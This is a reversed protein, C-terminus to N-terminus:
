DGGSTTHIITGSEGVAWGDEANAFVVGRLLGTSAPLNQATFSVGGDVTAFVQPGNGVVWGENADVFSLSNLISAGSINTEAWNAGGDTTRLVKGAHASIWAVTSSTATIGTLNLGTPVGQTQAAWSVGADVTVFLKSNDGIIWGTSSNAFFVGTLEVSVSPGLLLSVDSWSLGADATALVTGGAGVAWGANNSTFHVGFLNDSSGSNQSSWTTGGDSTSLITGNNGVVWGLNDNVFYVSTLNDTSGSTQEGWSVGGDTTLLVKGAEGVAHIRTASRAFVANIPESISSTQSQWGCTSDAADAAGDCDNDDGDTCLASSDEAAVVTAPEETDLNGDCDNDRGDCLENADPNVDTRTDDCDDDATGPTGDAGCSTFLDGDGDFGNDAVGDCDEDDANCTETGNPNDLPDADDCDDDATGATGDAGCSTFLDGDGDFGNDAVGDCDEDDANCTETGSPNDLPDADDCDDDATGATGDAGCSTFLDGDGDFGEDVVSDCNNDGGDCVEANGPFNNAGAATDDCDDDSNGSNGDPGCTTVGDGDSDFGNDATGDCDEDDANCTETGNPHDLPDSDDCDTGALLNASTTGAAAAVFSLCEIFFDSDDDTEDAPLNTPDSCDTDYGDCAEVAVGPNVAGSYSNSSLPEDVCDSGSVLGLGGTGAAAAVFGSCQAYGDGDDDNELVNDPSSDGGGGSCNTDYGDCVDSSAAPSVEDSYSNGADDVCDGGSILNASTTGAAAAVFSDCPIYLDGDDDREDAREPNSNSAGASCDTDHGDCVETANPHVEDAYSNSALDLCDGGGLLSQPHSEGSAIAASVFNACEIFGDGDDDVENGDVAASGGSSCDTDYGDCVELAAPNIQNSYPTPPGGSVPPLDLCDGGGLLNQLGTLAASSVFGACEIYGDADQDNEDAFDPTSSSAGGTCNTDYGDCAEAQNPHVQGSYANVSAIEDLCDAGGVIGGPDVWSGNTTLTCELYGDGDDDQESQQDPSHSSGGGTCDTDYGDCSESAAGPHVFSSWSNAAEDLCDGGGALSPSQTGVAAAVFGDCHIYGDGDDDVEDAQDPAFSASGNSCNSDYGDCADTPQGPNVQAAYTNTPLDLCDNAGSLLQNAHAAHSLWSGAGADVCEVYGDGDNDFENPRTSATPVYALGLPESCDNTWGDCLDPANPHIAAAVANRHAVAAAGSGAPYGPVDILLDAGSDLCDGDACETYGDGDADLENGNSGSFNAVGDCDNDVGDCIEANNPFNNADGDDCDGNAESFGDGDDDSNNTQEDVQGNCNDDIGNAQETGAPNVTLDGDDCDGGLLGSLAGPPPWCTVYGDGDGDDEVAMILGDCDNDVGDCIEASGPTRTPDGDDCDGQAETVGDQDADNESGLGCAMCAVAQSACDTASTTHSTFCYETATQGGGFDFGPNGDCQNDVWRFVGNEWYSDPIEPAFPYVDSAVPDSPDDNCDLGGSLGVLVGNGPDCEVYGDGDKDREDNGASNFDADGDCDNDIGDCIEAASPYVQSLTDNCDGIGSLGLDQLSTGPSLNLTQCETYGDGDDDTETIHLQGDCNNDVFDCRSVGNDEESQNPNQTADGDDCDGSALCHGVPTCVPANGCDLDDCDSDGDGDDDLGNACLEPNSSDGRAVNCSAPIAAGGAPNCRCVEEVLPEAQCRVFLDNDDDSEDEDGVSPVNGDCDNDKGDCLEPANRYVTPDLDSAPDDCEEGSCIPRGDRDADTDDRLAAPNGSIQDPEGDCDDDIGNCRVPAQPYREVDDDACDELLEGASDYRAPAFEDSPSGGCFWQADPDPGGLSNPSVAGYSDRDRDRHYLVMGEPPWASGSPDDDAASCNNDRQEALGGPECVEVNGPFNNAGAVGQTDNCDDEAVALWESLSLGSAAAPNLGCAEALVEAYSAASDDEPMAACSVVQFNGEEDVESSLLDCVGDSDNDTIMEVTGDCDTDLQAEGPECAERGLGPSALWGQVEPRDECDEPSNLSFGEPAVCFGDMDSDWPREESHLSTCDVTGQLVVEICGGADVGDCRERELYRETMIQLRGRNVGEIHGEFLVEIDLEANGELLYNFPEQLGAEASAPDTGIVFASAEGASPHDPDIFIYLPIDAGSGNRVTVTKRVLEGPLYRPSDPQGDGDLDPPQQPNELDLVKARTFSLNVKNISIVADPDTCGPLLLGVMLLVMLVQRFSAFPAPPYPCSM